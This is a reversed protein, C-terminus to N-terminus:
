SPPNPPHIEFISGLPNFKASIIFRYDGKLQYCFSIPTIKGTRSLMDPTCIVIQDPGRETLEELVGLMESVHDDTGCMAQLLRSIDTEYMARELQVENLEPVNLSPSVVSSARSSGANHIVTGELNGPCMIGSASIVWNDLCAKRFDRIYTQDGSKVLRYTDSFSALAADKENGYKIWDKQEKRQGNGFFDPVVVLSAAKQQSIDTPIM